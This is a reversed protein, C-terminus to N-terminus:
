VVSHNQLPKVSERVTDRIVQESLRDDDKGLVYRGSGSYTEIVFREKIFPRLVSQVQRHTLGSITMIQNLTTVGEGNKFRKIILRIIENAYFEMEAPNLHRTSHPKLLSPFQVFYAVLSGSLFLLWLIHLWVLSIVISAFGSYIVSYSSSFAFIRTFVMTLPLWLIACFLGGLYAARFDVETNPLAAYILALLLATFAISLLKAVIVSLIPLFPIGQLKDTLVNHHTLVNLGIALSAIIVTLMLAGLYGVLQSKVPRTTDIHWIHNLAQEIKYFLSFVTYFLFILGIGGLYGAQANNVFQILYSSIQQGEAGMPTLLDNIIRQLFTDIGFSKLLTFLLALLPVIALLTSYTLSAAYLTIQAQTAVRIVGLLLRALRITITAPQQWIHHEVNTIWTM